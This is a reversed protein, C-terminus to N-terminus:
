IIRRRAPPSAPADLAPDPDPSEAQVQVDLTESVLSPRWLRGASLGPDDTEPDFGAPPAPPALTTTGRHLAREAADQRGREYLHLMSGDVPWAIRKTREFYYDNFAHALVSLQVDPLPPSVIEKDGDRVVFRIEFNPEGWNTSRLHM